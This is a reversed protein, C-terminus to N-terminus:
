GRKAMACLSAVILGLNAGILIGAILGWCFPSM